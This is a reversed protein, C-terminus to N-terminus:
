PPPTEIPGGERVASFYDIGGIQGGKLALELGNRRADDAHARCLPSGPAVAAIASLADVGLALTAHGSTDGGAILARKLDSADLIMGLMAGLGAGIRDNVAGVNAGASRCAETLAPVAPDDPGQATFVLPSAGQGLAALAAAVARGCEAAWTAPDVARAADLRIPAFGHSAAHAIQGATV